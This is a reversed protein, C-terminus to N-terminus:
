SWRFLLVATRMEKTELQTSYFASIEKFLNDFLEKLFATSHISKGLGTFRRM